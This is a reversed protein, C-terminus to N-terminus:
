NEIVKRSIKKLLFSLRIVLYRLSASFSLLRYHWSLAESYLVILHLQVNHESSTGVDFDDIEGSRWFTKSLWELTNSVGLPSGGIWSWSWAIWKFGPLTGGFM